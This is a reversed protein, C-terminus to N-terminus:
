AAGAVTQTPPLGGPSPLRRLASTLASSLESFSADAAAAGSGILYTGPGLDAAVAAVVAQLRRRVRNRTVAGGVDKGIAYAVAPPGGAGNGDVWSVWIPGSRARRGRRRLDAFSSRERVRWTSAM